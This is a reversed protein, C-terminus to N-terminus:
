EEIESPFFQPHFNLFYLKNQARTIATYLWRLYNEDLMEETVYGQDVFVVPWQGGQSKHCTVAYGFKVQLANYFPDKLVAEHIKKRDKLDIYAEAIEHYLLKQKEQGLNPGDQLLTDLLVLCEITPLDPFDSLRIEVEAFRFGYRETIRKIKQISIFDGNAIFPATYEEFHELWFYNNKVVMLLEGAQLEDEYWLIRSRIEQNFQNARKNSRTILITNERGYHDFASEMEEQLDLGNIVRIDAYNESVLAPFTTKAEVLMNRTQTANYLIGSDAEQRLIETLVVTAITLYYRDQLFASDLAPSHSLGVPPLQAEDGIFILRCNKGSFVYSILDDLLDRYQFSPGASMGDSKGIMSAEDVIFVTNSHKNPVLHFAMFGDKGKSRQYIKKHITFAAKDSYNGLVKAARGTPALLVSKMNIDPLSKILAKVSSTKGTGAYGRIILSCKPQESFLFRSVVEMLKLQGDTPEFNFHDKFIKLFSKRDVKNQKALLYAM